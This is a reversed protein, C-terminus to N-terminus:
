KMVTTPNLPVTKIAGDQLGWKVIVKEYTGNEILHQIAAQMPAAMDSDKPLGM